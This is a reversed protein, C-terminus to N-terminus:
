APIAASKRVEVYGVCIMIAILAVNAWVFTQLVTIVSADIWYCYAFAGVRGALMMVQIALWIGQKRLAVMFPPVLAGIWTAFYWPALVKVYRGAEAWNDGLIIALASAGFAWLIGFPAIGTAALGALVKLYLGQLSGGRDRVESAKQLMVMRFSVGALDLPMGVLRRAMAYFGIVEMGLWPGMVLIPLKISVSSLLNAPMNFLPFDRYEAAVAQLRAITM